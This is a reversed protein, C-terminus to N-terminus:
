QSSLVFIRQETIKEQQDKSLFVYVQDDGLLEFHFAACKMHFAASKM